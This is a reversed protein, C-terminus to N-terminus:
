KGTADGDAQGANAVTACNDDGDLVGDGDGDSLLGEPAYRGSSHIERAQATQEQPLWAPAVAGPPPFFTVSLAVLAGLFSRCALSVVSTRRPM